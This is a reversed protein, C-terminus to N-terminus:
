PRLAAQRMAPHGRSRHIDAAGSRAQGRARVRIGERDPGVATILGDGAVALMQVGMGLQGFGGPTVQGSAVERAPARGALGAM